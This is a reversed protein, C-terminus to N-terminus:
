QSDVQVPEDKLEKRAKTLKDIFGDLNEISWFSLYFMESDHRNNFIVFLLPASDSGSDVVKRVSVREPDVDMISCDLHM